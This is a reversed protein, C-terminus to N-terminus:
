GSVIWEDGDLEAYTTLGALDSGAGPESFLQCWTEEGTIAPRLFRHKQKEDGHKIITPAALNMGAGVPTSVAGASLLESRVIDDAWAPYGRGFWENPWSPVAWKNDVLLTRWELLSLNPDWTESLWTRVAIRLDQENVDAM